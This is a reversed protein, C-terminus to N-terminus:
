KCKYTRSKWTILWNTRLFATQHSVGQFMPYCLSQHQMRSVQIKNKNKDSCVCCRIRKCHMLWHRNHRLDLRKLQSASPAPRRQRATQPRPVRGAEQILDRVLTLKFQWHKVVLPSFSLATSFPLTWFISSCRRQRNGFGDALLTVTQCATLNKWM